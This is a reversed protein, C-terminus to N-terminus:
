GRRCVRLEMFSDPIYSIRVTTSCNEEMSSSASEIPQVLEVNFLESHSVRIRCRKQFQYCIREVSLHINLGRILSAYYKSCKLDSLPGDPSSYTSRNTKRSEYRNRERKETGVIRNDVRRLELMGIIFM